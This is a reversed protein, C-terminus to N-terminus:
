IQRATIGKREGLSPTAGFLAGSWAAAKKLLAPKAPTMARNSDLARYLYLDAGADGNDVLVARDTDGDAFSLTVASLVRDFGPEAQASTSLLALALFATAARM